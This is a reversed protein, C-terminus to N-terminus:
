SVYPEHDPEQLAYLGDAYVTPGEPGYYDRKNPAYWRIPTSPFNWNEPIGDDYGQMAGGYEALGYPGVDIGVDGPGGSSSFETLGHSDGHSTRQSYVNRMNDAHAYLQGTILPDIDATSYLRAMASQVSCRERMEDYRSSSPSGESPTVYEHPGTSHALSRISYPAPDCKQGPYDAKFGPSDKDLDPDVGFNRGPPADGFMNNHANLMADDGKHVLRGDATIEHSDGDLHWDVGSGQSGPGTGTPAALPAAPPDVRRKKAGCPALAYWMIVAIALVVLIATAGDTDPM